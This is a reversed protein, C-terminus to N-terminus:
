LIKQNFIFNKHDVQCDDIILPSAPVINTITDM